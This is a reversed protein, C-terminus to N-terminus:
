WVNNEKIEEVAEKFIHTYEKVKWNHFYDEDLIYGPTKGFQNKILYYMLDYTVSLYPIRDGPKFHGFAAMTWVPMDLLTKKLETSVFEFTKTKKDSM